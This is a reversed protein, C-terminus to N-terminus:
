CGRVDSSTFEFGLDSTSGGIQVEGVNGEFFDKADCVVHSTFARDFIEYITGENM